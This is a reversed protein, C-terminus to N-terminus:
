ISKREINPKSVRFVVPKSSGATMWVGGDTVACYVVFEAHGSKRTPTVRVPAPSIAVGCVTKV